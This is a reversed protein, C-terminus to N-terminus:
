KPWALYGGKLDYLETFGMSKLQAAAKQSRAGSRCYLYIPQNTDMESFLKVFSEQQFYDVNQAKSIHGASFEEATRVDVLLVGPQKIHSAFESAELIKAPTDPTTTSFLSRFFTMTFLKPTRTFFAARNGSM